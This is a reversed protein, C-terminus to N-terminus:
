AAVEEEANGTTQPGNEAESWALLSCGVPGHRNKVITDNIVVMQAGDALESMHEPLNSWCVDGKGHVLLASKITRRLGGLEPAGSGSIAARVGAQYACVDNLHLLQNLCVAAGDFFLCFPTVDAGDLRVADDANELGTSFGHGGESPDAGPTSATSESM